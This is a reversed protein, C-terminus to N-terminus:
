SKLYNPPEPWTVEVPFGGQAPIDRLAQRYTVWAARNAIPVDALQTYDSAALLGNRQARVQEETPPPEPAPPEPLPILEQVWESGNWKRYYGEQPAPPAIATSYAPLLFVGPELPSEDADESGLYAGTVESYSYALVYRSGDERTIITDAPLM